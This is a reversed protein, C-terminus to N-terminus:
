SGLAVHSTISLAEQQFSHTGERVRDHGCGHRGTALLWSSAVLMAAEALLRPVTGLQQPNSLFWPRLVRDKLSLVSPDQSM